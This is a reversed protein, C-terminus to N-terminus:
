EALQDIRFFATVPTDWRALPFKLRVTASRASGTGNASANFAVGDAAVTIDQVWDEDGSAYEVSIGAEELTWADLNTGAAVSAEGGAKPVSVSEASFGYNGENGLKGAQSIYMERTDDGRSVTLVVGHSVSENVTATVMIQSNGTGGTRSLSLWPTDKELKAAWPGDSYVLVYFSGGDATFRMDTRNLAFPIDTEYRQSCAAAALLMAAAFITKCDMSMTNKTTWPM